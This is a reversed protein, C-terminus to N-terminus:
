TKKRAEDAADLLKIGSIEAADATMNMAHEPPDKIVVLGDEAKPTLPKTITDNPEHDTM